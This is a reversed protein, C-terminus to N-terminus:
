RLYWYMGFAGLVAAAGFMQVMLVELASPKLKRQSMFNKLRTELTAMAHGCLVFFLGIFYVCVMALLLMGNNVYSDPPLPYFAALLTACLLSVFCFCLRFIRWGREPLAEAVNTAKRHVELMADSIRMRASKSSRLPSLAEEIMANEEKLQKLEAQLSPTKELVGELERAPEDPLLGDVYQTLLTRAEEITMAM